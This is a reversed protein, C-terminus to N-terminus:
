GATFGRAMAAQQTCGHDRCWRSMRGRIDHCRCAYDETPQPRAQQRQRNEERVRVANTM